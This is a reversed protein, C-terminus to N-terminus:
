RKLLLHLLVAGAFTFLAGIMLNIRNTLTSDKTKNLDELVKVQGEVKAMRTTMGPLGNGFWMDKALREVDEELSSKARYGHSESM